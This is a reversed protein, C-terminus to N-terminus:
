LSRATADPKIISFTREISMFLISKLPSLLVAGAISARSRTQPFGPTWGRRSRSALKEEFSLRRSDEAGLFCGDGGSQSARRLDTWAWVGDGHGNPRLRSRHVSHRTSLRRWVRQRHDIRM